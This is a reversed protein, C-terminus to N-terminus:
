KKGTKPAKKKRQRVATALVELLIIFLLTSLPSGKKSRIKLSISKAKGRQTRHYSHTQWVHGKNHQAISAGNGSQPSNKGTLPLLWIKDFAKEADRSIILHNKDKRKNIHHTLNMLKHSSFWGQMGPVFGVQDHHIIKNIYQQIQNALIKNLIKAVVKM